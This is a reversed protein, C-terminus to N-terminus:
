RGWLWQERGKRCFAIKLSGSVRLAAEENNVVRKMTFSENREAILFLLVDNVLPVVM